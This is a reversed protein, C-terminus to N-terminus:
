LQDNFANLNGKLQEKFAIVSINNNPLDVLEEESKIHTYFPQTSFEDYSLYEKQMWVEEFNGNQYLKNIKPTNRYFTFPGHLHGKKFALIDYGKLKPLFLRELNGYVLDIDGYGWFEYDAILEEFIQGYAPHIDCLKYHEITPINVGTKQRILSLLDQFSLYHIKVNSPAREPRELNTIFLVDISNINAQCSKLFLNIYPPWTGYYPIIKVVRNPGTM